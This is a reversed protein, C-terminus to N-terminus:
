VHSSHLLCTHWQVALSHVYHPPLVRCELWAACAEGKIGEAVGPILGLVGGKEVGEIPKAVMGVAGDYVGRVMSMGGQMVVGPVGRVGGGPMSSGGAQAQAASSTLGHSLAATLKSFSGIVGHNRLLLLVIKAWQDRLRRQIHEVIYTKPVQPPPPAAPPPTPTEQDPWSCL